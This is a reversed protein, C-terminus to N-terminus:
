KKFERILDTLAPATNLHPDELVRDFLYRKIEGIKPGPSLGLIEQIERGSINLDNMTFASHAALQEKIKGLRVRAQSLTYPAKALNGKKDAIRMRLFDHYTLDLDALMALLRRVARPTSDENLPRMHARVLSLIYTMDKNSFRLRKLDEELAGCYKEHGPFTLQGDKLRAADFKGVDHLYGALRLLPRRAPLADGVLMCHDFVTEGHHPGGDLDRCRDLSPFILALLGTHSLQLFFQSPRAMAMAKVVEARIREGAARTGIEKKRSQIAALSAPEIESQYRASFRCARVMRIPDEKIRDGPSRTFRIVKDALDRQGNFPDILTGSFPDWAMSNITFDRMGLDAEPFKADPTSRCSAVEVGNILSIEFTRGVQRIKRGAFLRNVAEPAADTLIDVDSPDLGLLMDRVAGGVVYAAHGSLNLTNIIPRIVPWSLSQTLDVPDPAM